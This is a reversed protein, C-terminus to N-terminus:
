ANSGQLSNSGAFEGGIHGGVYFGTWSYVVEPVTYVPAKTYTRKPLDAGLAPAAFAICAAAGLLLKKM